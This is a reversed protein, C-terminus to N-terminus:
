KVTCTTMDEPDTEGENDDDQIAKCLKDASKKDTNEYQAEIKNITRTGYTYSCSCTYGKKCSTFGLMLCVSSFLLGLKFSKKM